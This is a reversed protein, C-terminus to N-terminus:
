PRIGARWDQATREARAPGLRSLRAGIKSAQSSLSAVSREAGEAQERAVDHVPTSM